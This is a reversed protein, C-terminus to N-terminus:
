FFDSSFHALITCIPEHMEFVRATLRLPIEAYITVDSSYNHEGHFLLCTIDLSVSFHVNHM